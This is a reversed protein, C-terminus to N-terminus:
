ELGISLSVGKGEQSVNESVNIPIYHSLFPKFVYPVIILPRGVIIFTMQVIIVYSNLVVINNM